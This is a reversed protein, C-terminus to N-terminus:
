HVLLNLHIGQFLSLANPDQSYFSIDHILFLNKIATTGIDSEFITKLGIISKDDCNVVINKITKLFENDSIAQIAIENNIRTKVYFLYPNYTFVFIRKM